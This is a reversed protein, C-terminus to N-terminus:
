EDNEGEKNEKNEEYIESLSKKGLCNDNKCFFQTKGWNEKKELPQNCFPCESIM